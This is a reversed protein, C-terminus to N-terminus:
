VRSSSRKTLFAKYSMFIITAMLIGPLFRLFFELRSLIAEQIYGSPCYLSYYVRSIDISNCRSIKKLLPVFIFSLPVLCGVIFVSVFNIKKLKNLLLLLPLAIISTFIVSFLFAPGIAFLFLQYSVASDESTFVIFPVSLQTLLLGIIIHKTSMNRVAKNVLGRTENYMKLM